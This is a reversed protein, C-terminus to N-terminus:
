ALALLTRQCVAKFSDFQQRTIPHQLASDAYFLGVPRNRLFVSLLLCQDPNIVAQLPPPILARYKEANAPSISVAQPKKMLLSFLSPTSLDVSFGKLGEASPDGGVLRARLGTRDSNLMAFMTRQLGIERHIELLASQILGQLANATQGTASSPQPQVEPPRPSAKPLPKAAPAPVPPILHFAPLPIPLGYLQRAAEAAQGHLWSLASDLPIELFEALLEVHDLTATRLWGLSSERALAACLMVSLPRPLYSNSLGQSVRILEPLCWMEGLGASIEQLTCGFVELAADEHGDGQHILQQMTCMKDPERSWLAMEGIDHLLAATYLSGEDPDRRRAALAGAYIAAHAARGYCAILGLRPAGHLREELCPLTRCAEEIRTMGLLPLALAIKNVPERPANPLRNFLRIIHLSFGPDRAIVQALRLHNVGHQKLLDRVQTQTRRLVPLTEASLRDVWQHAAHTM